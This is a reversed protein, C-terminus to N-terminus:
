ELKGIWGTWSSNIRTKGMPRSMQCELRPDERMSGRGSDQQSLAVGSGPRLELWLM